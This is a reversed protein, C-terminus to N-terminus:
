VKQDAGGWEKIAVSSGADATDSADLGTISELRTSKTRFACVAQSDSAGVAMGPEFVIRVLM